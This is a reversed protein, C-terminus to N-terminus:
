VRTRPYNQTPIVLNSMVWFAVIGESVKGAALLGKKRLMEYGAVTDRKTVNQSWGEVAIHRQLCRM